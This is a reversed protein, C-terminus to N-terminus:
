GIVILLILFVAGWCQLAARGRELWSSRPGAPAIAPDVKVVLLITVVYLMVAIVAPILAAIFLTIVFERAIVAYIVMIISPPILMGLTGGAAICGTAIKPSYRRSLMEPLAIRGMTAATAPSSGCVAGFGACGAITAYALGGPRH